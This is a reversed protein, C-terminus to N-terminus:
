KSGHQPESTGEVHCTSMVEIEKQQWFENQLEWAVRMPFSDGDAAMEFAELFAIAEDRELAGGEDERERGVRSVSPGLGAKQVIPPTPLPQRTVSIDQINYLRRLLARPVELVERNSRRRKFPFRVVIVPQFSCPPHQHWRRRTALSPPRSSPGVTGISFM